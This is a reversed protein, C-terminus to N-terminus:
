DQLLGNQLKVKEQGSRVRQSIRIEFDILVSFMKGLFSTTYMYVQRFIWFLSLSTFSLLVIQFGTLINEAFFNYNGTTNIEYPLDIGNILPSYFDTGLVSALLKCIGAYFIILSFLEGILTILRPSLETFVYDIISKYQIQEIQETRKRIISYMIWSVFVSIFFGLQLAIIAAIQDWKAIGEKSINKIFYGNEGLINSISLYIGTILLGFAYARLTIVQVGTFLKGDDISDLLPVILKEYGKDVISFSFFPLSNGM